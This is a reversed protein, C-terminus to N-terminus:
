DDTDDESQETSGEDVVEQVRHILEKTKWALVLILLVTSGLSQVDETIALINPSASM